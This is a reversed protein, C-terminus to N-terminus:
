VTGVVVPENSSSAVGPAKEKTVMFAKVGDLRDPDLQFPITESGRSTGLSLIQDDVQGWLQYLDGAGPDALDEPVLYGRGNADVAVRARGEDGKLEVAVAPHMMANGALDDISVQAVRDEMTDIRNSQKVVVIGLAAVIAAAIGVAAVLTRIRVGRAELGPGIPVVVRDPEAAGTPTFTMRLPPAPPSLEAAIRDWVGEPAPAGKSLFAAVERHEAVEARCRPCTALHEEIAEREDPEVADLAYAGLLETFEDVHDSM